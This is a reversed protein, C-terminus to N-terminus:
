ETKKGNCNFKTCTLALSLLTVNRMEEDANLIM